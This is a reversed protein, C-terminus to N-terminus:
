LADCVSVIMAFAMASLKKNGAVVQRTRDKQTLNNEVSDVMPVVQSLCM